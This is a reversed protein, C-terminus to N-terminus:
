GFGGGSVEAPIPVRAGFGGAAGRRLGLLVLARRFFHRYLRPKRIRMSQARTGAPDLVSLAIGGDQWGHLVHALDEAIQGDKSLVCVTRIGQGRLFRHSPFDQPFVM